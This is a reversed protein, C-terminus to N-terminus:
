KLFMNINKLETLIYGLDGVYGWNTPNKKFNNSHKLLKKELIAIEKKIDSKKKVYSEKATAM